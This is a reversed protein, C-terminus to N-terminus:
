EKPGALFAALGGSPPAAADTASATAVTKAEMGALYSDLAVSESGAAPKLGLKEVGYAVVAALPKDACDFVGIHPALRAALKDRAAIEAIANAPTSAAKLEAIEKLAADLGTTLKGIKAAADIAAAKDMAEKDTAAKDKADVEAPVTTGAAAAAAPSPEDGEAAVVAAAPNAIKQLSAMLPGLKELAAVAQEVTLEGGADNGDKKEDSMIPVEISDFTLSDLVAVDPGMRGEGVLALHNGRIERQVADYPIGNFVGATWDYVCRYGLSLQKKGTAILNAMAESFVKLNGRIYPAEFYVDQGIVGQVGKREAPTLDDDTRGLMTHDDVWPLLRLSNLCAPDALEEAPRYVKYRKNPDPAGPLQAGLYEFVGVKSLPNGTIEVWGNIDPTRASIGAKDLAKSLAAADPEHRMTM